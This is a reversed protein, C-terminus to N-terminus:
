KKMDEYTRRFGFLFFVMSSACLIGLVNLIFIIFADGALGYHALACEMGTAVLPPMLSVAIGIGTMASGVKPRMLGYAAIAGSILAIFIDFFYNPSFLILTRESTAHLVYAALYSGAGAFLIALAGAICLVGFSRIVLKADGAALGLGLSLIPYALPAVIMSAILVPISDLFIGSFALLVAGIVLIYFDRDPVAAEILDKIAQEKEVAQFARPAYYFSM